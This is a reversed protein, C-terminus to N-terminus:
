GSVAATQEWGAHLWSVAALLDDPSLTALMADRAAAQAGAPHYLADGMWRALDQARGTRDRRLANFRSFREAVGAVPEDFVEGLVVADELALCAGQAAYQLMPHAADGILVVRGDCWRRVPLRDCLVWTRWDRGLRLLLRPADALESFRDLVEQRDVQIGSVAETAGDDRTIALNLMTGGAIPYHVFHWGPGAWLCVSNWRLEEPVSEMPVVSRHITHGSVRPDGDGLMRRRVASRIGDAGILGEASICSGDALRCEVADPTQEYGTVVSDARLEIRIDAQCARLLPAYLDGRHVVAYVDGFAERYRGDLPLRVLERGSVGDHLRLAEIHVATERVAPAVGLRGLARFANPALQIGAGIEAFRGTRELVRVRQGRQALSLAAALGSIGGGAIVFESV